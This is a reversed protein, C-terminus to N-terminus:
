YATISDIILGMNGALYGVVTSQNEFGINDSGEAKFQLTTDNLSRVSIKNVNVSGEYALDQYVVWNGSTIDAKSIQVDQKLNYKGPNNVLDQFSGTSISSIQALWKSKDGSLHITIGKDLKSLPASLLVDQGKAILSADYGNKTDNYNGAVFAKHGSWVVRGVALHSSYIKQGKYWLSEIKKGKYYLSKIKKGKYMVAM